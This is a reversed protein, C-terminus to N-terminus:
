RTLVFTGVKFIGSLIHFLSAVARAMVRIQPVGLDPDAGGELRQQILGELDQLEAEVETADKRTLTHLARRTFSNEM